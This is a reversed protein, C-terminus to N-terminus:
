YELSNTGVIFYLNNCDQCDDVIADIIRCCKLCKQRFFPRNILIDNNTM